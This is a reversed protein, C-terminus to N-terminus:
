KHCAPEWAQEPRSLGNWVLAKKCAGQVSPHLIVDLFDGSAKNQMAM